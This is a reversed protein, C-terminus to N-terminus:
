TWLHKLLRNTMLTWVTSILHEMDGRVPKGFMSVRIRQGVIDDAAIRMILRIISERQVARAAARIQRPDVAVHTRSINFSM